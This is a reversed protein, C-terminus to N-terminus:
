PQKPVQLLVAAFYRTLVRTKNHAHSSPYQQANELRVFKSFTSLDHRFDQDESMMRAEEEEIQGRLEDCRCVWM